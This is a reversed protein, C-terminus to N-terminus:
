GADHGAIWSATLACALVASNSRVAAKDQRMTELLEDIRMEGEIAEEIEQEIGPVLQPPAIDEWDASPRAVVAMAAM